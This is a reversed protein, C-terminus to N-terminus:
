KQKSISYIKSDFSPNYFIYVKKIYFLYIRIILYIDLFMGNQLLQFPIYQQYCILPNWYRTSIM